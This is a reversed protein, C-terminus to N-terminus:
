TSCMNIWEGKASIKMRPSKLTWWLSQSEDENMLWGSSCAHLRARRLSRSCNTWCGLRIRSQRPSLGLMNSRKRVELREVYETLSKEGNPEESWLRIETDKGIAGTCGRSGGYLWQKKSKANQKLESPHGSSTSKQNWLSHCSSGPYLGRQTHGACWPPSQRQFSPM